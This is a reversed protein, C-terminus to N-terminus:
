VKSYQAESQFRLTRVKVWPGANRHCCFPKLWLSSTSIFASYVWDPNVGSPYRILCHTKIGNQKKQNKKPKKATDWIAHKQLASVGQLTLMTNLLVVIISGTWTVSDLWSALNHLSDKTEQRLSHSLLKANSTLNDTWGFQIKALHKWIDLFFLSLGANFQSILVDLKYYHAYYAIQSM